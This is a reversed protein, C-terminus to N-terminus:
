RIMKNTQSYDIQQDGYGGVIADGGVAGLMLYQGAEAIHSYRNKDPKDMFRMEGTVQMRKYKYGGSMAKRFMPAGPGILFAPQGGMDLRQLYDAVVERRITADNTYTPWAVVGENNLINFPTDEDTQARQEGAPDGYIEVEFGHYKTILKQRLLKGFNKAGMDFTVLEDFIAVQGTSTVQGILAAPTLGFDIGVFIPLRKNLVIPESTFHVGDNYEPYVPKGDAIFGYLGDVYVRVWEADKGQIMNQYYNPPLNEVNEAEATMGGPQHFLAHNDPKDEEFLKYFWHDSDPPNTDLIMGFWSPGGIRKSPYRGLRGIGMDLIAKPIERAENLWMGTMELSLLKKVDNPRDLARFLFEAHMITGDPLNIHM